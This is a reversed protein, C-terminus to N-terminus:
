DSVKWKLEKRQHEAVMFELLSDLGNYMLLSDDDLEKIRNTGNATPSRLFEEVHSNYDEVGLRIFAQFKVSTIGPRNDLQHATLMTDWWWGAVGHGLKARSWREEFKLNSAIKRLRTKRLIRSILRLEQDGTKVAFTDEGDLCFSCSVIQQEKREPKLGTTEYDFALLGGKKHKLLDRLRTRASSPKKIVEVQEKLTELSPVEVPEDELELAQQLHDRTLKMLLPDEHERALFSPHYTPCVWANYTRLPITWGVWRSLSGTGKAWLPGLLSEVASAGLLIIVRPKLDRVTKLLNPRCSEIFVPKMKNEPPRCIVANTKWCDDLEVGVKGLLKPGRLLQGAKGILQVGQRDEQEGPAEAVFLIKRHGTGTPGM